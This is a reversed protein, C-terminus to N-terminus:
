QLGTQLDARKVKQAAFGIDFKKFKEILRAPKEILAPTISRHYTITLM